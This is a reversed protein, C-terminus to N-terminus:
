PMPSRGGSTPRSEGSVLEDYSGPIVGQGALIGIFLTITSIIIVVVGFVRSGLAYGVMGLIMGLIDTALSVFFAGVVAFSLGVVCLMRGPVVGRAPRRGGRDTTPAARGGFVVVLLLGGIVLVFFLIVVLAGGLAAQLLAVAINMSVEEQAM